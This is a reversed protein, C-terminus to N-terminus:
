LRLPDTNDIYGVPHLLEGQNPVSDRNEPIPNLNIRHSDVIAGVLFQDVHHHAPTHFLDIRTCLILM